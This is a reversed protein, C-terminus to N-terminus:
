SRSVRGLQSLGGAVGLMSAYGVDMGIRSMALIIAKANSLEIRLSQPTFEGAKSGVGGSVLCWDPCNEDICEQPPCLRLKELIFNALKSLQITPYPYEKRPSWCLAAGGDFGMPINHMFMNAEMILRGPFGRIMPVMTKSSGSYNLTCFIDGNDLTERRKNTVANEMILSMVAAPFVYEGSPLQTSRSQPQKGQILSKIDRLKIGLGM